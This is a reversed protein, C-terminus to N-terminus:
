PMQLESDKPSLAGTQCLEPVPPRNPHGGTLSLLVQVQPTPNIDM